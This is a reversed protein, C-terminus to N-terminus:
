ADPKEGPALPEEPAPERPRGPNEPGEAPRDRGPGPPQLPDDVRPMPEVPRVPEPDPQVDTDKEPHRPASDALLVAPPSLDVQKGERDGPLAPANGQTPSSPILCAPVVVILIATAVIALRKRM